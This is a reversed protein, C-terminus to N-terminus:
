DKLPIINLVTCRYEEEFDRIREATYMKEESEEIIQNGFRSSNESIWCFSVLFKCKKPQSKLQPRKVKGPLAICEPTILLVERGNIQELKMESIESPKYEESENDWISNVMIPVNIRHLMRTTFGNGFENDM